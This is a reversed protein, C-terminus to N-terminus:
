VGHLLTARRLARRPRATRTHPAAPLVRRHRHLQFPGAPARPIQLMNAALLLQCVNKEDVEIRGTYAFRVILEMARLGVGRISVRHAQSERLNSTFMARFYPIGAALVVRHAQVVGEGSADIEVDCLTRERWLSELSTLVERPYSSSRRQETLDEWDGDGSSWSPQPSSRPSSADQDDDARRAGVRFCRSGPPRRRASWPRCVRCVLGRGESEQCDPRAGSSESPQHGDMALM